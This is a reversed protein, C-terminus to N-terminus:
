DDQGRIDVSDPSKQCNSSVPMTIHTALMCLAGLLTLCAPASRMKKTIVAEKMCAEEVKRRQLVTMGILFIKKLVM